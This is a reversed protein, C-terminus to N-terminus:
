SSAPFKCTESLPTSDHSDTDGCERKSEGAAKAKRARAAEMLEAEHKRFWLNERAGKDDFGDKSCTRVCEEEIKRDNIDM